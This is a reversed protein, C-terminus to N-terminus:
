SASDSPFPVGSSRRETFPCSVSVHGGTATEGTQLVRLRLLKGSRGETSTAVETLFFIEARGLRRLRYRRDPHLGRWAPEVRRHACGGPRGRGARDRSLSAAHKPM